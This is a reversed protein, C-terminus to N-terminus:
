APDHGLDLPVRAFEIGPHAKQDGVQATRGLPHDGKVILAARRLLPDSLTLIRDPPCPQRAPRHLGVRHAQLKMRQGVVQGVEEASQNEWILDFAPRQGGSRSFTTLIPAFTM